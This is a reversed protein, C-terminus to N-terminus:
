GCCTPLRRALYSLQAALPASTSRQWYKPLTHNTPVVTYHGRLSLRTEDQLRAQQRNASPLASVGDQMGLCLRWVLCLAFALCKPLQILVVVGASAAQLHADAVAGPHRRSQIWVWCAFSQCGCGFRKGEREVLTPPMHPLFMTGADLEGSRRAISHVQHPTLLIRVCM